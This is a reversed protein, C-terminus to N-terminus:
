IFEVPRALASAPRAWAVEKFEGLLFLWVLAGLLCVAATIEIAIQFHGTWDVTFGTLAPGIVGALNGFGNQLGAWRGVARPGALTQTFAWINANGTGLGVAAVMLWALYSHLGASACGLLGVAATTWGLAMATKRMAGAALGRRIWFDTVWGTALAAAADVTYYLAAIYAMDQLSLHQEHVLYFPLWTITFYLPYACCFAGAATAWFPRQRLIDIMRASAGTSYAPAEARPMWKMWAPLWALSVLGIGLFVPRWGYNAMLLGAGLTGAAPGLKMGSIIAGNAFGRSHEPVDRALIKSYCPFAVSEGVGLMLRMILLMAFGHVLGTAATSVSWVLFGFALVRSPDFRDVFWGCVFLMATYTWFFASLLIGLKSASIGLENKLLPAAISLNGRDVYNIFVSVVLLTLAVLLPRSLSQSVITSNTATSQWGASTFKQYGSLLRCCALGEKEMKM